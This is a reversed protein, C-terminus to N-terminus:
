RKRWNKRHEIGHVTGRKLGRKLGILAKEGYRRYQKRLKLFGQRTMELLEAGEFVKMEKEEVKQIIRAKMNLLKKFQYETM